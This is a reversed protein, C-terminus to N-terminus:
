AAHRSQEQIAQLLSCAAHVCAGPQAVQDRLRTLESVVRSAHDPQTLWDIIHRAIRASQDTSTAIEPYLEKEALLNVLTFYRLKVLRRALWLSVPAMRYVIVTPKARYMLELSVSGSVAICATSLQIIEPTRGVEVQIPIDVGQIAHRIMRGHREHYAAVMFRVDPCVSSIQKAARLMMSFNSSVEQDRSGPLLGVVRGTTNQQLTMFHPDLQQAALEDFYPHGTYETRVGQKRYWQDEFPLATFVRTCWKRLQRVRGRRWAWLQPPVFYYVPIGYAHARKGLQFNFGPYDILVVADPRNARFHTEAANALRFFTPIHRLVRSVGMVALDTLPYDLTVGAARMRPGGFGRIQVDPQRARLCRVLNAGHLDGSPEGASIFLKM